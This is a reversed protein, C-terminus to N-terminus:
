IIKELNTYFYFDIVSWKLYHYKKACNNRELKYVFKIIMAFEICCKHLTIFRLMFLFPLQKSTQVSADVFCLQRCHRWLKLKNVFIRQIIRHFFVYSWFKNLTFINFITIGRNPRKFSSLGSPKDVNPSIHVCTNM